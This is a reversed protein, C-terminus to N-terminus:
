NNFSVCCVILIFVLIKSMVVIVRVKNNIFFVLTYKESYCVTKIKAFYEEHLLLQEASGTNARWFPIVANLKSFVTQHNSFTLVRNLHTNQIRIRLKLQKDWQLFNWVEGYECFDKYKWNFCIQIRLFISKRLYKLM